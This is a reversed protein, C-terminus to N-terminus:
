DECRIFVHCLIKKKDHYYIINKNNPTVGFVKSFPLCITDPIEEIQKIIDDTILTGRYKLLIEDQLKYRYSLAFPDEGNDLDFNKNLM